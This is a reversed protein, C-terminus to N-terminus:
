EKIIKKTSINNNNDKCVLIYSGTKLSQVDIENNTKNEGTLIQRGTLDYIQYTFSENNSTDFIIKFKEKIPNPYVNMKAKVYVGFDENSLNQVIDLPTGDPWTTQKVWQFNGSGLDTFKLAIIKSLNTTAGILFDACEPSSQIYWLNIPLLTNSNTQKILTVITESIDWQGDGSTGNVSSDYRITKMVLPKADLTEGSGDDAIFNQLTRETSTIVAGIGNGINKNPVSIPTSATSNSSSYYKQTSPLYFGASGNQSSNSGFNNSGLINSLNSGNRIQLQIVEDPTIGTNQYHGEAAQQANGITIFLLTTIIFTKTINNM